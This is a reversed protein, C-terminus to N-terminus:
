NLDNIARSQDGSIAPIELRQLVLRNLIPQHFNGFGDASENARNTGNTPIDMGMRFQFKFLV